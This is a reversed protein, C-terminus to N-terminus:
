KLTPSIECDAVLNEYRTSAPQEPAGKEELTGLLAQFAKLAPSRYGAAWILCTIARSFDDTLSQIALNDAGPILDLVSRPVLAIGMGAAVCSVIAHYSSFEMIRGPVASRSSVWAELRQRYACGASFAILTSGELPIQPAKEGPSQPGILVLEEEVFRRNELSRNSVPGAVFAADLEGARVKEQLAGTTGTTVELRVEPFEAHYRAFIPPLRSAATSEMTGIRLAGGPQRGKVANLAEESLGLLRNAYELLVRGEDTLLMRRNRRHFLRTGLYDELQKVRTTVNSQVRHLRRAAGIVSTEEAVAKFIELSALDMTRM